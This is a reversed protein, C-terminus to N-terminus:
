YIYICGSSSGVLSLSVQRPCRNPYIFTPTNGHVNSGGSYQGSSSSCSNSYYTSSSSSTSANNSIMTYVSNSAM